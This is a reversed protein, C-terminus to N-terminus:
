SYYDKILIEQMKPLFIARFNEIKDIYKETLLSEDLDDM